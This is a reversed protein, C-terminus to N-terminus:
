GVGGGCVVPLRLGFRLGFRVLCVGLGLRVRVYGVYGKGLGLTVGVGGGCIVSLDSGTVIWGKTIKLSAFELEVVTTVRSYAGVGVLTKASSLTRIYYLNTPSYKSPISAQIRSNSPSHVM